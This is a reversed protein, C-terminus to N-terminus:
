GTIGDHGDTVRITGGETVRPLRERREVRPKRYARKPRTSGSRM